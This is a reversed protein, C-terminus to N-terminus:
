SQKAHVRALVRKRKGFWEVLASTRYADWGKRFGRLIIREALDFDRTYHQYLRFSDKIVGGDKVIRLGTEPENSGMSNHWIAHTLVCDDFLKVAINESYPEGDERM